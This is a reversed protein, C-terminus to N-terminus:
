LGNLLQFLRNRGEVRPDLGRERGKTIGNFSQPLNRTQALDRSLDQDGLDARVHTLEWCSTM